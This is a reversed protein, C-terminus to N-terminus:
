ARTVFPSACRLDADGAKSATRRSSGAAAAPLSRSASPSQRPGARSPRAPRATSAAATAECFLPQGRDLLADVQLQDEAPVALQYDRMREPLAQNPLEHERQM